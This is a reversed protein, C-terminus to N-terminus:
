RPLVEIPVSLAPSLLTKRDVLLIDIRSRGPRKARYTGSLATINEANLLRESGQDISTELTEALTGKALMVRLRVEDGVRISRPVVELDDVKPAYSSIREALHEEMYQQIARAIPEVPTGTGANDVHVLVNRFTWNITTSPGAVHQIAVDGLHAPGREYPITLRSTRSALLVLHERVHGPGIGSVFVWVEISGTGRKWSFTAKALGPEIPIVQNWHLKLPSVQRSIVTPLAQWDARIGDTADLGPVTKIGIREKFDDVADSHMTKNAGAGSALAAM